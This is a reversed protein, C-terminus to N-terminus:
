NSKKRPGLATVKGIAVTKGEDRLTFRGLQPVKSFLELCIPQACEIVCRVVCGSKVFQPKKKVSQGTKKDLQELLVVINCEEVATHIHIVANYGATFISKHSLLELIVVQAEFKTQCPVPFKPDCLIFGRGLGEEEVGKLYVRINEGPKARKFSHTDSTKIQICEVSINNPVVILSQGKSITGAEVKGLAVVMGHERFKDILPIRLPIEPHRNPIRVKDLQELLSPGNYWPCLEKNARDKINFSKFGSVPVFHVNNKLDYGTQKL